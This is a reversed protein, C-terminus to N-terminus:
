GKLAVDTAEFLTADKLAGSVVVPSGDMFEDSFAGNFQIAIQATVDSDTLWFREDQGAPKLTGARILGEVKVPKGYVSAGYGLLKAVDLADTANEYKSPCKTVLESCDLQGNNLVGTCIATIQNGFTAAVAGQYSVPLVVTPEADDFIAFTLTDGNVQYSNDVVKGTVQVRTGQNSDAVAEPVTLVKSATSGGVIALTVLIVVIIIGTVVVLRRKLKANL